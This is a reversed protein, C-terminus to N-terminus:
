DLAQSMDLIAEKRDGEGCRHTQRQRLAQWFNDWHKGFFQRETQMSAHACAFM